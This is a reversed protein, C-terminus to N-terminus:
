TLDTSAGWLFLVGDERIVTRAFSGEKNPGSRDGVLEKGSNSTGDVLHEGNLTSHTWLVARLEQTGCFIM